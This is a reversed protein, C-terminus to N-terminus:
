EVPVRRVCFGLVLAVVPFVLGTVVASTVFLFSAPVDLILDRVLMKAAETLLVLLLLVAAQQFLRFMRLREHFSWAVFTVSSFCIGNLGLPDGLLADFFLGLVWANILGVRDPAVIGWFFLVAMVWQPRLWTLWDPLFAPLEVVALVMTAILTVFILWGGQRPNM